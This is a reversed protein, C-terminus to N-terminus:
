YTVTMGRKLRVCTSWCFSRKHVRCILPSDPCEFPKILFIKAHRDGCVQSAHLTCLYCCNNFSILQACVWMYTFAICYLVIDPTKYSKIKDKHVFELVSSLFGPVSLCLVIVLFCTTLWTPCAIAFLHTKLNKRFPPNGFVSQPCFLRFQLEVTDVFIASTYSLISYKTIPIATAHTSLAHIQYLINM